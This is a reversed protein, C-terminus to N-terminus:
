IIKGARASIGPDRIYYWVAMDYIFLRARTVVAIDASINRVILHFFIVKTVYRYKKSYIHLISVEM